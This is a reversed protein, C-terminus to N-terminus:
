NALLKKKATAISSSLLKQVELLLASAEAYKEKSIKQSRFLLLLWYETENAEKFSISLKHIFDKRSQSGNSERINAGISTGSRLMQNALAYDKKSKILKDSLKIIVLALTTSKELLPSKM